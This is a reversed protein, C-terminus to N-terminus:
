QAGWKLEHKAHGSGDFNGFIAWNSVSIKYMRRGDPEALQEKLQDFDRNLASTYRRIDDDGAEIQEAAGEFYLGSPAETLPHQKVITGAVYPSDKLEVCHRTKLKSVFYINLDEDYAFHLECVWPKGDHVTALSMHPVRTILDERIIQEIDIM